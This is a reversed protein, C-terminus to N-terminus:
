FRAASENITKSIIAEDGYMFAKQLRSVTGIPSRRYEGRYFHEYLFRQRVQKWQDSLTYDDHLKLAADINEEIAARKQEISDGSAAAYDGLRQQPSQSPLASSIDQKDGFVTNMSFNSRQMVVLKRNVSSSLLELAAHSDDLGSLCHGNVMVITEGVALWGVSPLNVGVVVLGHSCYKVSAGITGDPVEIFRLSSINWTDGRMANIQTNIHTDEIDNSPSEISISRVDVRNILDIVETSSYNPSIFTENIEVIPGTVVSGLFARVARGGGLTEVKKLQEKRITVKMKFFASVLYDTERKSAESASEAM